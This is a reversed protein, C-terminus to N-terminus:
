RCRSRERVVGNSHVGSPFGRSVHVVDVSKNPQKFNTSMKPRKLPEPGDGHEYEVVGGRSGMM